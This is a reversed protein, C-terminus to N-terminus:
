THNLAKGCWTECGYGISSPNRELVTFIYIEGVQWTM